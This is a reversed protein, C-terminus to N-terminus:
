LDNNQSEPPPSVAQETVITVVTVVRTRRDPESSAPSAMHAVSIAM